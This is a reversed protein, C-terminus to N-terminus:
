WWFNHTTTHYYYTKMNIKQEIDEIKEQLVTYYLKFWLPSIKM